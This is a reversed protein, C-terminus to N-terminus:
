SMFYLMKVTEHLVEWVLLVLGISLGFPDLVVSCAELDINTGQTVNVKIKSM